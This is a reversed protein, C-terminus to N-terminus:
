RNRPGHQTTSCENEKKNNIHNMTTHSDKPSENIISIGYDKPHWTNGNADDDKHTNGDARYTNEMHNQITM